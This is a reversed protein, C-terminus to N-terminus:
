EAGNEDEIEVVIEEGEEICVAAKDQCESAKDGCEAAKKGCSAFAFTTAVAVFLVLKKM